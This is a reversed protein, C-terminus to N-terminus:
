FTIQAPGGGWAQHTPSASSAMQLWGGVSAARLWAALEAWGGPLHGQPVMPQATQRDLSGHGSQYMTRGPLSSVSKGVWQQGMVDWLPSCFLLATPKSEVGSSRKMLCVRVEKLESPSSWSRLYWSYFTMTKGQCDPSLIIASARQEM